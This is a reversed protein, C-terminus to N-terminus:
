NRGKKSKERDIIGVLFEELESNKQYYLLDQIKELNKREQEEVRKRLFENVLCKTSYYDYQFLEQIMKYMVITDIDEVKEMEDYM